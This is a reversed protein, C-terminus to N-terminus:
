QEIKGDTFRNWLVKVSAEFVFDISMLRILSSILSSVGEEWHVATQEPRQRSIDDNIELRSAKM